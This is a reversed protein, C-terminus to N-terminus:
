KFKLNDIFIEYSGIVSIWIFKVYFFGIFLLMIAHALNKGWHMSNKKIKMKNYM